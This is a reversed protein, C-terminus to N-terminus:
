QQYLVKHDISEFITLLWVEKNIVCVANKGLINVVVRLKMCEEFGNSKRDINEM